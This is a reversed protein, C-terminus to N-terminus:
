VQKTDAADRLGDGLFNFALVTIFIAGGPALLWPYSRLHETNQAATLMNGWSAQPEQIGVALYSLVVEGLIYYPVMLTAAIVVYSFTSPLIHKTVIRWSSAGMARAALIFQRERISLTMGRIVRATSAWGIFSLIAIIMAYAKTSSMEPPFTGRLAIILYLAPVSMILETSRMIVTDIKGGYLGSFGGVLMGISFTIIIGILGISLSIQSGYLVRSFQDRGFQDTGLLYVPFEKDGTGFLHTECPIFGFLRYEDGKVFFRIPREDSTATYKFGDAQSYGPVVPRWNSFGVGTMPHFFRDRDQREFHYPAVFGALLSILYLFLLIWAGAMAARQRRLRQWFIQLPSLPVEELLPDIPLNSEPM